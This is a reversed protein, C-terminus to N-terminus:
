YCKRGKPHALDEGPHAAASEDWPTDPLDEEVVMQGTVIKDCFEEFDDMRDEPIWIGEFVVFTNAVVLPEPNELEMALERTLVLPVTPEVVRQEALISTFGHLIDEDPMIKATVPLDSRTLIRTIMFNFSALKTRKTDGDVADIMGTSTTTSGPITTEFIITDFQCNMTKKLHWGYLTDMM